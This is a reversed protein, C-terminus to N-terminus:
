KLEIGETTINNNEMLNNNEKILGIGLIFWMFLGPGVANGILTVEFNIFILIGIMYAASLRVVNDDLNKYYRKWISRLFMFFILIGIWGGQLLLHLYTNHASITIGEMALIDNDIGYGFLPSQNLYKFVIGWIIQRGSFFNGGTYKRFFLNIANGINMYQLQVYLFTFGLIAFFVLNFLVLYGLRQKRLKGIAVYVVYICLLTLASTREGLLMLVITFIFTNVFKHKSKTIFFFTCPFMFKYIVFSFYKDFRTFNGRSLVIISAPILIIFFLVKGYRYISDLIKENLQVSSLLCIFFLLITQLIFMYFAKSTPTRVMMIFSYISYIFFWGWISTFKIRKARFIVDNIGLLFISVMSMYGIARIFFNNVLYLPVSLLLIIFLRYDLMFIIKNKILNKSIRFNNM